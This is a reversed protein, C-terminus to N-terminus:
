FRRETDRGGEGRACHRVEEVGQVLVGHLSEGPAPRALLYGQAFDCGHRKLFAFQETTEVGEGVVSLGLAHGMAIIARAIVGHRHHAVHELFVKDIKMADIPLKELRSLASYGTGFDDITLTIGRARLANLLSLASTSARMSARETLELDLRALDFDCEASSRDVMGLLGGDSVQLASVNLALRLDTRGTTVDWRQLQRVAKRMVLEALPVILGSEEALHVIQAAGEDPHGIPWRVLGEVATVRGTAMDVIPQYHVDLADSDIARRLSGLGASPTRWTKLEPNFCHSRNRVEKARYQAADAAHLLSEVTTGHDPYLAIGISCSVVTDQDEISLPARCSDLLARALGTAEDAGDIDRAIAAFEDGSLRAVVDSRRLAGRLRQAIGCLVRDGFRHGFTDNIAKFRDLDVFMIAFRGPTDSALADRLTEEFLTRNPLGTLPDHLAMRALEEHRRETLVRILDLGTGLGDYRGNKTVIFGDFAYRQQEEILRTGLEDIHTAADLILPTEDMFHVVPKKLTLERGFRGALRELFRFRNVLGVPAGEADVVALSLLTQDRDFLDRAEESTAYSTLPPVPRALDGAALTPRDAAILM